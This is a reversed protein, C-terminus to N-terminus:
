QSAACASLCIVDDDADDDDDDDDDDATCNINTLRSSAIFLFAAGQM